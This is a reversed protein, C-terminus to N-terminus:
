ATTAVMNPYVDVCGLDGCLGEWFAGDVCSSSAGLQSMAQLHESIRDRHPGQLDVGRQALLARVDVALIDEPRGSRISQVFETWSLSQCIDALESLKRAANPHDAGLVHVSVVCSHRFHLLGIFPEHLDRLFLEALNGHTYISKENVAGVSCRLVAEAHYFQCMAKFAIALIADDESSGQLSHFRCLSTVGGVLMNEGLTQCPLGELLKTAESTCRDSEDFFALQQTSQPPCICGAKFCGNARRSLARGLLQRDAFTSIDQKTLLSVAEEGSDLLLKLDDVSRWNRLSDWYRVENNALRSQCPLPCGHGLYGTWRVAARLEVFYSVGRHQRWEQSECPQRDTCSGDQWRGISSALPQKQVEV